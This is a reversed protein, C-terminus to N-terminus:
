TEGVGEPEIASQDGVEIRTNNDGLLVIKVTSYDRAKAVLFPDSLYVAEGGGGLELDQAATEWLLVPDADDDTEVVVVLAYHAM